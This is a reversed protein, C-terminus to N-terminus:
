THVQMQKRGSYSERENGTLYMKARAALRARAKCLVWAECAIDNKRALDVIMRALVAGGNGEVAELCATNEDMSVIAYAIGTQFEACLLALEGATVRAAIEQAPAGDFSVQM